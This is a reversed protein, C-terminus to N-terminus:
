FIGECRFFGLVASVWTLMISVCFSTVFVFVVSSNVSVHLAFLSFGCIFVWDCECM